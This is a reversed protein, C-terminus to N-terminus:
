ITHKGVGALVRDRIELPEITNEQLLIATLSSVLEQPVQFRRCSKLQPFAKVLTDFHPVLDSERKIRSIRDAIENDKTTVHGVSLGVNSNMMLACQVHGLDRGTKSLKCGTTLWWEATARRPLPPAKCGKVAWSEATTNDAFLQVTPYPDTPDESDRYFHLTAVYNIILAAYELANITILTGLKANKVYRLTRKQIREDWEIYWWFRMSISFGGAARLCSDSHAIGSPIRHVMHSIPRRLDIWESRLAREILRLERRLTANFEIRIKSHHIAKASVAQVFSRTNNIKIQEVTLDNKKGNSRQQAIQQPNQKLYKIMERFEKRTYTLHSRSRNLAYAVSTYLHSMLMRLWPVTDSIHGLQGTLTEIESILFSRRRRNWTTRLLTLTGEVFEPPTHVTMTRTHICRGLIKNLFHIMMEEM